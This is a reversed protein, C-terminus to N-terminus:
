TGAHKPGSPALTPETEGGCIEVEPGRILTPEPGPTSKQGVPSVPVWFSFHRVSLYLGGAWFIM